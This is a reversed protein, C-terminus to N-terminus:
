PNPAADLEQGRREHGPDAPPRGDVAGLLLGPPDPPQVATEAVQDMASRAAFSRRRMAAAFRQEATAPSRRETPSM